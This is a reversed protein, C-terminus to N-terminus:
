IMRWTAGGWLGLQLLDSDFCLFGAALGTLALRQATTYTPQQGARQFTIEKTSNSYFLQEPQQTKNAIPAVFLGSGSGNLATGLASIVICAQVPATYNAYAGISVSNAATGSYASYAGLAVSQDGTANFGAQFGIISARAGLNNYGSLAGIATGNNKSGSGGGSSSGFYLCEVGTTKGSQDGISVGFANGFSTGGAGNGIRITDNGRVSLLYNSGVLTATLQPCAPDTTITTAGGGGGSANFTLQDPNTADITMNTGAVLSRLVTNGGATALKILSAGAGVSSTILSNPQFLSGNYRLVDGSVVGSTDVDTLDNVSAPPVTSSVQIDDGVLSVSTGGAGTISRLVTSTNTATKLVATGIGASSVTPPLILHVWSTGNYCEFRSDTTNFRIGGTSNSRQATTGTPVLFVSTNAGAPFGSAFSANSPIVLKTLGNHQFSLSGGDAIKWGTGSDSVQINNSTIKPVNLTITDATISATLATGVGLGKVSVVGATNSAILSNQLGVAQVNQILPTNVFATNGANRTFGHYAQLSTIITPDLVSSNNIKQWVTGNSVVWDNEDWESIGSLTTTGEVSCIYYNGSSEPTSLLPLNLLADWQGKYFLGPQTTSSIIIDTSNALVSLGTGAKIGLTNLIDGSRPAVISVGTTTISQLDIDSGGSGGGTIDDGLTLSM